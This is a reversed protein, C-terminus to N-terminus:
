ATAAFAPLLERAIENFTLGDAGRKAIVVIDLGPQLEDRRTRFLERV